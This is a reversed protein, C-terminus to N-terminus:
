AAILALAGLAAAVGVWQRPAIREKLLLCALLITGAPYLSTTLAVVDLRGSDAALAFLANGATDCVGCLGIVALQRPRQAPIGGRLVAAVAFLSISAARACLLTWLFGHGGAADVCIFFLGFGAGAGLALLVDRMGTSRGGASSSLLWIAALALPFGALTSWGPLGEVALTLLTPLLAAFVASLPAVVGMSGRSLGTYLGLLGMAGCLGALAGFGLSAPSPVPEGLLLALVLLLSAGVLQSLLVVTTVTAARAAYGGSFDGAGWTLASGLGYAIALTETSAM